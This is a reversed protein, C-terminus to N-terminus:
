KLGKSLKFCIPCGSKRSRNALTAQWEHGCKGLWWVKKRSKPAVQSPQLYGNKTPHWQAALDPNVTCLDNIGPVVKKGACVPCGKGHNRDSIMAKWEHGKECVWWVHKGSGATIERPTFNINKTPHWQAALTPNVTELDNFGPLVVLGACIPCGCGNNRRAIQAVWEHGCKGLWWVKKGSGATVDYPMLTGNKSPHWESALSPNISRLDNVRIRLTAM